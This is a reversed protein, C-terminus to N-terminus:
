KPCGQSLPVMHTHRHFVTVKPMISMQMGNQNAMYEVEKWFWYDWCDKKWATNHITNKARLPMRKIDWATGCNCNNGAISTIINNGNEDKANCVPLIKNPVKYHGLTCVFVPKSPYNFGEALTALHEPFWLDDDDYNACHTIGLEGMLDLCFNFATIGGCCWLNYGTHIEREPARHMNVAIIKDKPVIKSMEAFEARPEYCDGILFIKWNPYSQRMVCRLAQDVYYPIPKPKPRNCTQIRVGFCIDTNM